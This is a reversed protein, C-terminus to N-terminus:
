AGFKESPITVLLSKDYQQMIYFWHVMSESKIEKEQNEKEYIHSLSNTFRIM